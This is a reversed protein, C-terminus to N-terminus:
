GRGREVQSFDGSDLWEVDSPIGNSVVSSIIRFANERPMHFRSPFWLMEVGCCPCAQAVHLGAPVQERLNSCTFAYQYDGAAENQYECVGYKETFALNLRSGVTSVLFVYGHPEAAAKSIVERVTSNSDAYYEPELNWRTDPLGFDRPIRASAREAKNPLFLAGAAVDREYDRRQQRLWEPMDGCHACMGGYKAATEPVIMAGCETCKVREADM